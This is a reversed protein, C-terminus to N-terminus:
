ISGTGTSGSEFAFEDKIVGRQDNGMGKGRLYIASALVESGLIYGGIVDSTWHEGRYVRSVGTLLVLFGLGLLALARKRSPPMDAWALYGYYGFYGTFFLTHGSPYGPSKQGDAVFVTRRAPRPMDVIRRVVAGLLIVAAMAYGAVFTDWTKKERYLVLLLSGAIIYIQPSKGVESPVAMAANLPPTRVKQLRQTLRKNPRDFKRMRELAAIAVFAASAVATYLLAARGSVSGRQESKEM